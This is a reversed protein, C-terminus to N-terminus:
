QRKNRRLDAYDDLTASEKSLEPCWKYWDYEDRGPKDEREHLYAHV